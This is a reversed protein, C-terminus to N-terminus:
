TTPAKKNFVPTPVWGGFAKELELAVAITLHDNGPLAAVQLGLPLGDVGLGLPVQTVPMELVNFIASYTWHNILFIMSNHKPATMTYTPFLLVGNEGLLEHMENKLEVGLKLYKKEVRGGYYREQAILGLIPFIHDSTGTIWKLIEMMFNFKKYHSLKREVSFGGAKMFAHAFIEFSYKLRELTTIKSTAGQLNLHALAQRQAELLDQNIKKIGNSEISFINLQNIDVNAPDNLKQQSCYIDKGDPGKLIKLLPYLDEARRALPGICSYRSLDGQYIPFHGTNPVMGHTPKHSFIGNFFAPLRLSGSIDSGLGLPSAGSGIIAGEGGTSGGAVHEPNYPNNTRGYIHNYTEMWLCLEPINTVGIPIIGSEIYRMVSTASDSAVFDKRSVLGATQPMGKLALSEKITGPVGYFPPLEANTNLKIYKDARDADDRAAAFRNKVIANIEPNIRRAHQIHMEVVERSSVERTRILKALQTGSFLLLNM